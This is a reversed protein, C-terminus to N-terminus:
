AWDTSLLWAEALEKKVREHQGCNSPQTGKDTRSRNTLVPMTTGGTEASLQAAM